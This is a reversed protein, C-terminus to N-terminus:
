EQEIPADPLPGTGWKNFDPLSIEFSGDRVWQRSKLKFYAMVKIMECIMTPGASCCDINPPDRYHLNGNRIREYLSPRFNYHDSNETFAVFFPNHCSQCLILALAAEDAYIDCAKPSFLKYRPVGREDFWLPQDIIRDLIDNYNVRM